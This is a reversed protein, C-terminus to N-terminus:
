QRSEQERLHQYSAKDLTEQLKLNVSRQWILWICVSIGTVCCTLLLYKIEPSMTSEGGERLLSPPQHLTRWWTVSKYIVPVDAAILVGLVSCVKTRLPGSSMSSWLLLYGCYLLSLIFTTTLRADWTWWVGWTPKGWISGTALTLITYLLGLEATAKSYILASKQGKLGGISFVLLLFSCFFASFASPVHLYLIRYVEGQHSETTAFFLAYGWSLVALCLVLLGTILTLPSGAAAAGKGQTM